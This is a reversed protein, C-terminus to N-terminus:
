ARGAEPTFREFTRATARFALAVVAVLLVCLVVTAAAPAWGTAALARLRDATGPPVVRGALRGLLVLALVLLMPLSVLTEFRFRAGLALVVSALGAPVLTALLLIAATAMGPHGGLAAPVGARAALVTAVAGGAVSALVIPALRVAALTAPSVPLTCLFALAGDMRDKVLQLALFMPQMVLLAGVLGAVFGRTGVGTALAVAVIALVGGTSRLVAPGLRRADAALLARLHARDVAALAPITTM